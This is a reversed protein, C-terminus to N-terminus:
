SFFITYTAMYCQLKLPKSTELYIEFARLDQIWGSKFYFVNICKIISHQTPSLINEVYIGFTIVQM